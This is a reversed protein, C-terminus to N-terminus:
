NPQAPKNGNRALVRRIAAAMKEKTEADSNRGMQRLLTAHGELTEALEPSTISKSRERITEAIRYASDAQPYKGERYYVFALSNEAEGLDANLM